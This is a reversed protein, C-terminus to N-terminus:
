IVTKKCINTGSCHFNSHASCVRVFDISVALQYLMASRILYYSCDHQLLIASSLLCFLYGAPRVGEVSMQVVESTSVKSNYSSGLRLLKSYIKNRLTKKVSKSSLHSMRAAGITCLFRVIIAGVAISALVIISTVDETKTLLKQLFFGIAGIMVINAALSLWQLAVNLAIYKKSEPVAQILRKNIMM